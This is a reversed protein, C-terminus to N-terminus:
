KSDQKNLLSQLIINKNAEDRISKDLSACTNKLHKYKTKLINLEKKTKILRSYISINMMILFSTVLIFTVM